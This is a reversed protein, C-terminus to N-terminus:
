TRKEEAFLPRVGVQLMASSVRRGSQNRIVARVRVVRLEAHREVVEGEVTLEDGIFVPKHFKAEVSQLLSREGPLFMGCLTSYLSATLMGYVVRGPQGQERAYTEDTHLPNEDGSIAAFADMMGATVTRSFSAKKGVTMDEFTNKEAKM